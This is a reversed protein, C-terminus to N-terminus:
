ASASKAVVTTAQPINSFPVSKFEVSIPDTAGPSANKNMVLVMMYRKECTPSATNKWGTAITGQGQGGFTKWGRTDANYQGATPEGLGFNQQQM